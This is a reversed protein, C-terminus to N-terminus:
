GWSVCPQFLCGVWAVQKRVEWIYVTVSVGRVFLYIYFKFACMQITYSMFKAM